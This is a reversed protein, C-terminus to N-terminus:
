VLLVLYSLRYLVNKPAQGHVCTGAIQKGGGAKLEMWEM